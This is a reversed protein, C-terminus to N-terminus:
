VDPLISVLIIIIIIIIVVYLLPRLDNKLDQSAQGDIIGNMWQPAMGKEDPETESIFQFSKTFMSTIIEDLKQSATFSSKCLFDHSIITKDKKTVTFFICLSDGTRFGFVIDDDCMLIANDSNIENNAILIEKIPVNEVTLLSILKESKTFTALLRSGSVLLFTHSNNNHFKWLVLKELSHNLNNNFGKPGIVFREENNKKFFFFKSIM